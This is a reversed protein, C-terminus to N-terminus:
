PTPLFLQFKGATQKGGTMPADVTLTMPGTTAGVGSKIAVVLTVNRGQGSSIVVEARGGLTALPVFTKGAVALSATKLNVQGFERSANTIWLDVLVAHTAGEHQTRSLSGALSLAERGGTAMLICRFYDVPYIAARTAAISVGSLVQQVNVAISSEQITGCQTTEHALDPDATGTPPPTGRVGAVDAITASTATGGPTSQTKGAAPTQSLPPESPKATPSAAAATTLTPGRSGATKGSGPQIGFAVAVMGFVVLAPILIQPKKLWSPLSVAAGAPSASDEALRRGSRSPRNPPAPTQQVVNGYPRERGQRSVSIGSLRGDM